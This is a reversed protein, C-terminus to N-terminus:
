YPTSRTVAGPTTSPAYRGESASGSPTHELNTTGDFEVAKPAPALGDAGATNAPQNSAGLETTAAPQYM